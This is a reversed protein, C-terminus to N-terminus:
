LIRVQWWCFAISGFLYMTSTNVWFFVDSISFCSYYFSVMMFGSTIVRFILAAEVFNKIVRYFAFWLLVLSVLHYYLLSGLSGTLMFVINMWGIALWRTNWSDYFYKVSGGLGLERYQYLFEFDDSAYRNYFATMLFCIVFAVLAPILFKIQQKM